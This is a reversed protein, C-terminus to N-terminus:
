DRSQMTLSYIVRKSGKNSVFTADISWLLVERRIQDLTLVKGLGSGLHLFYGKAACFVEVYSAIGFPFELLISYSQFIRAEVNGMQTHLNDLQEMMRILM